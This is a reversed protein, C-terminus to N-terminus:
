ALVQCANLRSLFCLFHQLFSLFITLQQFPSFSPIKAIKLELKLFDHNHFINRRHDLKKLTKGCLSSGVAGCVLLLPPFPSHAGAILVQQKCLGEGQARARRQLPNKLYSKQSASNPVFILPFNEEWIHPPFTQRVSCHAGIAIFTSDIEVFAEKHCTQGLLHWWLLLQARRQQHIHFGVVGLEM